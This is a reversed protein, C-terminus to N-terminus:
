WCVQNRVARSMGDLISESKLLSSLLSLIRSPIAEGSGSGTPQIAIENNGITLSKFESLDGGSELIELNQALYLALEYTAQKLPLPIVGDQDIGTRPFKLAQSETAKSGRYSLKELESTATILALSGNEVDNWAEGGLRGAFYANAEVFTAYSNSTAGGVTAVLAPRATTAVDEVWLLGDLELPNGGDSTTVKGTVLYETQDTGGSLRVQAIQGSFTTDGVTLGTPTAVVSVVATITAGTAMKGSFDFDFLRSEAPQKTLRTLAM